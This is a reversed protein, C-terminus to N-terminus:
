RTRRLGALVTAHGPLHERPGTVVAGGLVPYYWDMSYRSKSRPGTPTSPSTPESPARRRLEGAGRAAAAQRRDLREAIRSRAAWASTRRPPQEPSCRDPECVGAPDEIGVRHSREATQLALVVGDSARRGHAVDGRAFDVTVRADARPHACGSRSTGVHNTEITSTADGSRRRSRCRGMGGDGRPALREVRLCAPSRRSRGLVALRWRQRCTTGPPDVHQRRCGGSRSREAASAPPSRDRRHDPRDRRSRARRKPFGGSM